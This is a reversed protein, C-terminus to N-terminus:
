PTPTTSSRRILILGVALVLVVGAEVGLEIQSHRFGEATGEGQLTLRAGITLIHRVSSIVGIILFPQLQLESTEFHALVTRLLELVIIVFLVGNIAATIRVPFQHGPSLFDAATRYLVVAAIALLLGAIIYHVVDELQDVM